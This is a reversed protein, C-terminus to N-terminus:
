IYDIRDVDFPGSVLPRLLRHFDIGGKVGAEALLDSAELEHNKQLPGAGMKRNILMAVPLFLHRWDEIVKEESLDKLIRFAYLLSLEQQHIRTSAKKLNDFHAVISTPMGMLNADFKQRLELHEFTHSWPGHGVDHLLGALSVVRRWYAYSHPDDS